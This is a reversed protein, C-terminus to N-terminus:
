PFADSAVTCMGQIVSAPNFHHYTRVSCYPLFLLHGNNQTLSTETSLTMALGRGVVVSQLNVKTKLFLSM